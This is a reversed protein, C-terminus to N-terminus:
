NITSKLLNTLEFEELKNNYKKAKEISENIFTKEIDCTFYYRINMYWLWGMSTLRYEDKTEEILKAEIIEKLKLKIESSLNAYEFDNKKVYGHLILHDYIPKDNIIYQKTKNILLKDWTETKFMDIYEEITGSNLLGINQTKTYANSGFGIIDAGELGYLNKGYSNEYGTYIAKTSNIINEDEIYRYSHVNYPVYKNELFIKNVIIKMGLKSLGTTPKLNKEEYIRALDPTISANNIVYYDIDQVGTKIAENLDDILQDITQGHFGFMMDINLNKPYYNQIIKIANKVTYVTPKLNFMDRYEQNFTQVGMKVDTVGIQKFTEMLENTITSPEVEISFEKLKSLDFKENIKNKIKKLQISSLISPTGGGFFIVDVMPKTVYDFESKIEIEKLLAEVYEDVIEKSTNLKKPFPCFKCIQNCFPINFYLARRKIKDIALENFIKLNNGKIKKNEETTFETKVRPPVWEYIPLIKNFKFFNDNKYLKM